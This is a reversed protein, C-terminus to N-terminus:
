CDKVRCGNIKGDSVATEDWTCSGILDTSKAVVCIEKRKYSTCKGKTVCGAGGFTCTASYATCDAESSVFIPM